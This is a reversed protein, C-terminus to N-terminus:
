LGSEALGLGWIRLVCVGQFKSKRFGMNWFRSVAFDERTWSSPAGFTRIWEKEGGGVVVGGPHEKLAKIRMGSVRVWYM